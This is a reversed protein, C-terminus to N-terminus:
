GGGEFGERGEGQGRERRGGREGRRHPKNAEADQEQLPATSVLTAIALIVLVGQM